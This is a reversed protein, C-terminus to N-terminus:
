LMHISYYSVVSGKLAYTLLGAPLPASLFYSVLKYFKSTLELLLLLFYFGLDSEM